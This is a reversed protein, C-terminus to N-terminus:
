FVSAITSESPPAGSEEVLHFIRALGDGEEKLSHDIDELSDTTLHWHHLSAAGLHVTPIRLSVVGVQSGLHDTQM